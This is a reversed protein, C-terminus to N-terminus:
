STPTSGTSIAKELECRVNAILRPVSDATVIPGHGCVVIKPALDDIRQISELWLRWEAPGGCDLNPLYGSTLCDGCYVVGEDPVYLSMNSATHGPTLLIEVACKGLDMRSDSRIACDPNAIAVGDYFVSAEGRHRRADNPILANFEAVENAFEAETRAISAHGWVEVGRDRFYSNGGVHDFHQETNMVRLRNRPNVATAYGHITAASASNAGTDAILTTEEGVIFGANVYWPPAYGLGTIAYCRASIKM